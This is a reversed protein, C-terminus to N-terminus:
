QESAMVLLMPTEATNALVEFVRGRALFRVVHNGLQTTELDFIDPQGLAQPCCWTPSTPIVPRM